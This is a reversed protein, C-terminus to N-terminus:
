GGSLRASKRSIESPIGTLDLIARRCTVPTNGYKFSKWMALPPNAIEGIQAFKRVLDIPFQEFNIRFFLDCGIPGSDHPMNWDTSTRLGGLM